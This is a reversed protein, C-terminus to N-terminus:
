WDLNVGFYLTRASDNLDRLELKLTKSRNLDLKAGSTALGVAAGIVNVGQEPIGMLELSDRAFTRLSNRVVKRNHRSAAEYEDLPVNTDVGQLQPQRFGWQFSDLGTNLFPDISDEAHVLPNSSLFLALVIIITRNM